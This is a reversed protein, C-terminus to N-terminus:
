VAERAARGAFSFPSALTQPALPLPAPCAAGGHAAVSTIKRRKSLRVVGGGRGVGVCVCVGNSIASAGCCPSSESLILCCRRRPSPAAATISVRGGRRPGRTLFVSRRRLRRGVRHRRRRVAHMQRRGRARRLPRASPGRRSRPSEIRTHHLEVRARRQLTLLLVPPRNRPQHSLGRANAAVVERALHAPVCRTRVSRARHRLARSLAARARRARAASARGCALDGQSLRM